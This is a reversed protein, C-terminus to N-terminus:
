YILTKESKLIQDILTAGAVVKCGPILDEVKIMRSQICPACVLLEGGEAQYTDMLEKLPPFGSAHVHEAYGKLGLYVGTMQLIIVAETDMAQATTALVFPITAREPQEEAHTVIFVLRETKEEPM